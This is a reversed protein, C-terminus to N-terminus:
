LDDKVLATIQFTIGQDDRSAKILKIEKFYPLQYLNKIFVGISPMTLSVGNISVSNPRSISTQGSVQGAYSAETIEEKGTYVPSQGITVQQGPKNTLEISILWLDVPAVSNLDYFLNSWTVQGVLLSVYKDLTNELEKRMSIVKEAKVVTPALSALQQQTDALKNKMIMFKVFFYSYGFILVVVVFTVVGILLMRRFDTNGERQLIPPLLNGKYTM